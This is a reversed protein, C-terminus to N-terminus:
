PRGESREKIVADAFATLARKEMEMVSTTEFVNPETLRHRAAFSARICTRSTAYRRMIHGVSAEANAKARAELAERGKPTLITLGLVRM